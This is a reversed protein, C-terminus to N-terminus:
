LLPIQKIANKNHWAESIMIVTGVNALSDKRGAHQASARRSTLMKMALACDHM